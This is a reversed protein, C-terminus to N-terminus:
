RTPSCFWSDSFVWLWWRSGAKGLPEAFVKGIPKMRMVGRNRKISKKLAKYWPEFIPGLPLLAGVLSGAAIDAGQDVLSPAPSLPPGGLSIELVVSPHAM